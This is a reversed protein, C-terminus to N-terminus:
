GSVDIREGPVLTLDGFKELEPVLKPIDRFEPAEFTETDVDLVELWDEFM